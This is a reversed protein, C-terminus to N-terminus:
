EAMALDKEYYLDAYDLLASSNGPFNYFNQNYKSFIWCPNKYILNYNNIKLIKLTRSMKSPALGNGGDFVRNL